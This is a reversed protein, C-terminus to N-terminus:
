EDGGEPHGHEAVKERLMTLIAEQSKRRDVDVDFHSELYDALAHKNLYTADHSEGDVTVLLEEGTATAASGSDDSDGESTEDSSDSEAEVKHGLAERIDGEHVIYDGTRAKTESYRFLRGNSKKEM